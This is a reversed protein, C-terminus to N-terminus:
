ETRDRSKACTGLSLMAAAHRTVDARAKKELRANSVQNGGSGVWHNASIPRPRPGTPAAKRRHSMPMFPPLTGTSPTSEYAEGIREVAKSTPRPNACAVQDKANAQASITAAAAMAVRNHAPTGNLPGM